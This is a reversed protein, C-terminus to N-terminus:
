LSDGDSNDELIRTDVFVEDLDVVNGELVLAVDNVRSWSLVKSV